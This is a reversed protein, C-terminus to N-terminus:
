LLHREKIYSELEELSDFIDETETTVAEEEIAKLLNELSDWRSHAMVNNTWKYVVMGSGDSHLKLYVSCCKSEANKTARVTREQLLNIANLYRGISNNIM